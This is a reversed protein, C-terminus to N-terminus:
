MLVQGIGAALALCKVFVTILDMGPPRLPCAKSTPKRTLFGLRQDHHYVSGTPPAMASAGPPPAARDAGFVWHFLPKASPFPCPMAARRRLLNSRIGGPLGQFYVGVGQGTPAMKHPSHSPCPMCPSHRPTAPPWPPKTLCPLPAAPHMWQRSDQLRHPAM